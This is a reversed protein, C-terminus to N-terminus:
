PYWLALINPQIVQVIKTMWAETARMELHQPFQFQFDQNERM